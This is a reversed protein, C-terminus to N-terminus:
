KALLFWLFIILLMLIVLIILARESIGKGFVIPIPGIMVLGGFGSKTEKPVEAREDEKGFSFYDPPANEIRKTGSRVFLFFILIPLIFFILPILSLVSNSAFIPIFFFYYIKIFGFLYLIVESILFLLISVIPLLYLWYKSRSGIEKSVSM